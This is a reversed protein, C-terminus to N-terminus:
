RQPLHPLTMLYAEGGSRIFRGCALTPWHLRHLLVSWWRCRPHSERAYSLSGSEDRRPRSAILAIVICGATTPGLFMDTAEPTSEVFEAESPVYSPRGPLGYQVGDETLVAAFARESDADGDRKLGALEFTSGRRGRVSWMEGDGMPKSRPDLDVALSEEVTIDIKLGEDGEFNHWGQEAPEHRPSDSNGPSIRQLEPMGNHIAISPNFASQLSSHHTPSPSARVDHMTMEHDPASIRQHGLDHSLVASADFVFGVSSGVMVNHLESGGLGHGVMLETSVM